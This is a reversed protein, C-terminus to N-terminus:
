DSLFVLSVKVAIGFNAPVSPVPPEPAPHIVNGTLLKNYVEAIVRPFDEFSNPVM